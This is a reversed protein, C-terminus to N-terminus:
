FVKTSNWLKNFVNETLQLLNYFNNLEGVKKEVLLSTRLKM